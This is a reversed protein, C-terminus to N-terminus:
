AQRERGELILRAAVGAVVGSAVGVGAGVMGGLLGGALPGYRGTEFTGGVNQMRPAGDRHLVPADRYVATRGETTDDHYPWFFDYHDRPIDGLYRSEMVPASWTRSHVEQAAIERNGALHGLWAGAGAGVAAGTLVAGGAIKRVEEQKEDTLKPREVGPQLTNRLAAVGVGLAVGALGGVLAGIFGSRLPEWFSDHVFRPETYTGVERYRVTPSYNHWYGRTRETCTESSTTNGESDTSYSTTCTREIDPLISETRGTLEPDGISRRVWEERISDSAQARFGGVTGVVGGVTAGGAGGIMAYDRMYPNASGYGYDREDGLVQSGVWDRVSEFRRAIANGLARADMMPM